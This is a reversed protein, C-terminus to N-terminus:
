AGGGQLLWFAGVGIAAIACIYLLAQYGRIGKALLHRGALGLLTAFAVMGAVTGIGFLVLWAGAALTSPLALAPLIGLLHSSGALGHLIGVGFAAHTHPGHHSQPPPLTNSSNEPLTELASSRLTSAKYWGWVGIGILVIGVLRESGASLIDTNLAKRLLLALAGIVAVGGTHGLGWRLGVRWARLREQAAYPAVAALHDPGSLVHVLGALLGGLVLSIL